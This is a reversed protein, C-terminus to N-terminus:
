QKPTQQNERKDTAIPVLNRGRERTVIARYNAILPVMSQSFPVTHM